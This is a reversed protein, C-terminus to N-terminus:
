HDKETNKIVNANETESDPDDEFISGDHNISDFDLLWKSSITKKWTSDPEKPKAGAKAPPFQIDQDDQEKNVQESSNKHLPTYNDHQQVELASESQKKKIGKMVEDM